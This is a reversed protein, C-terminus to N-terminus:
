FIINRRKKEYNVKKYKLTCNYLSLIVMTITQICLLIYSLGKMELEFERNFVIIVILTVVSFLYSVIRLFQKKVKLNILSIILGLISSTFFIMLIASYITEQYFFRDIEAQIAIEKIVSWSSYLAFFLLIINIGFM